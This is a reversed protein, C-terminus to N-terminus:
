AELQMQRCHPFGPNVGQTPFIGQLLFHCGVGTNKGPSDWPRFLRTPQLGHPQLSDSVISRSWKWKWAELLWRVSSIRLILSRTELAGGRKFGSRQHDEKDCHRRVTTSSFVRSLGKSLLSILGTLGLPFCDQITMPFVSASASARISQCGSAFLQSM